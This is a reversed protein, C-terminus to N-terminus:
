EVDIRKFFLLELFLVFYEGFYEMGYANSVERKQSLLRVQLHDYEHQFVRAQFGNLDLTIRKGKLDEARVTIQIPRQM